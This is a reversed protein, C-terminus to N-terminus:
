LKEGIELILKRVRAASGSFYNQHNDSFYDMDRDSMGGSQLFCSLNDKSKVKTISQIKTPTPDSVLEPM